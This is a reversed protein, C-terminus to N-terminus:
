PPSRRQYSPDRLVALLRQRLESPVPPLDPLQRVAKLTSRFTNLFAVCPPCADMHWDILEQTAQPLRGEIYDTLLEAIERCRLDSLDPHESAFDSPDSRESM